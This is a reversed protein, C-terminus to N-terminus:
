PGEPPSPRVEKRAPDQEYGSMLWKKAQGNWDLLIIAEHKESRLILRNGRQIEVFKGNMVADPLDELKLDRKHEVHKAIIHSLGYGGSFNRNPDGPKGWVLDIKGIHPHDFAGPVEGQKEKILRQIAEWPKGAHERFIPGHEGVEAFKGEDDRPHDGERWEADRTGPRKGFLGSDGDEEDEDPEGFRPDKSFEGLDVEDDAAEIAEDTINTWYGTVHSSQRLEKLATQQGVLGASVAQAVSTTVKNNIEAKEADSTQWLPRFTFTTGEPLPQGFKSQYALALTKAVGSRLRREQQQKIGDYYNRTDSEGTANLGAPAQGFLRTLPTDIAGAIQQGMQLLVLDLGSFTYQHAEFEDKSDMLTLGENTQTSRVFEIQKVLGDLAPGGLAIIERLNEVKYTRLHAKYALQAAGQTTSDFALLRDYLRELVSQGWLMESIKQWYPLDQGTIRIVRSHHIRLRPLALSDAVIDYYKPQGLEPGLETILNDLSPNVLWRDLALLGKFQDKRVTEIRLPTSFDQGDILFVALAGGYLRSWKIADCLEDWLRLDKWYGNLAEIEDPPMTSHIEIGERTMDEAAADVAKGCIWSGRYMSELRYRNRSLYTPNYESADIQSGAGYGLRAQFNQFSDKASFRPTARPKPANPRLAKQNQQKRL